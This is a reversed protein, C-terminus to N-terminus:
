VGQADVGPGAVVRVAGVDEHSTLPAAAQKGDPVEGSSTEGM